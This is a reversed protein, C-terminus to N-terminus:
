HGKNLRVGVESTYLVTLSFNDVKGAIFDPHDKYIHQALSFKM